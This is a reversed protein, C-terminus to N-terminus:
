QMLGVQQCEPDQKWPLLVQLFYLIQYMSEVTSTISYHTFNNLSKAVKQIGMYPLILSATLPTDPRFVPSETFSTQKLSWQLNHLEKCPLTVTLHQMTLLMKIATMGQFSLCFWMGSVNITQFYMWNNLCISHQKVFFPFRIRAQNLGDEGSTEVTISTQQHPM